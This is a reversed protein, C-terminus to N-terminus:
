RANEKIQKLLKKKMKEKEEDTLDILKLVREITEKSLKRDPDFGIFSNENGISM